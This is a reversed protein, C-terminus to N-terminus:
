PELERGRKWSWLAGSGRRREGRGNGRLAGGPQMLKEGGHFGLRRLVDGNGAAGTRGRRGNGAEQTGRTAACGRSDKGRQKAHSNTSTLMVPARQRESSRRELWEPSQLRGRLSWHMWRRRRSSSRRDTGEGHGRKGQMTSLCRRGGCSSQEATGRRARRLSGGGEGEATRDLDM